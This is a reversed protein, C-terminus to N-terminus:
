SYYSASQILSVDEAEQLRIFHARQQKIPQLHIKKEATLSESFASPFHPMLTKKKMSATSNDPLHM